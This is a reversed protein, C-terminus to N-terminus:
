SKVAMENWQSQNFRNPTELAISQTLEHILMKMSNENGGEWHIHKYPSWWSRACFYSKNVCICPM